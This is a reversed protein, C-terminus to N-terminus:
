AKPIKASLSFNYFLTTEPIDEFRGNSRTIALSKGTGSLPYEKKTLDAIVVFSGAPVEITTKENYLMATHNIIREAEVKVEEPTKTFDM